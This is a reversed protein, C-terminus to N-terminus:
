KIHGASFNIECRRSNGAAANCSLFSSVFSFFYFSFGFVLERFNERSRVRIQVLQLCCRPDMNFSRDRTEDFSTKVITRTRQTLKSTESCHCRSFHMKRGTPVKTSAFNLSILALSSTFVHVTFAPTKTTIKQSLTKSGEHLEVSSLILQNIPFMTDRHQNRKNWEM